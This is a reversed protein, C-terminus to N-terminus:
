PQDGAGPRVIGRVLMAGVVLAGVGAVGFRIWYQRALDVQDPTVELTVKTIALLAQSLCALLAVLLGIAVWGSDLSRKKEKQPAETL